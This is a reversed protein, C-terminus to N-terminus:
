YHWEWGNGEQNAQVRRGNDLVWCSRKKGVVTAVEGEQMGYKRQTAIIETGVRTFNDVTEEDDSRTDDTRVLIDIDDRSGWPTRRQRRVSAHAQQKDRERPQMKHEALAREDEIGHRRVHLKLDFNDRLMESKSGFGASISDLRSFGKQAHRRVADAVLCCQEAPPM